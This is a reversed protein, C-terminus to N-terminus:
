RVEEQRDLRANPLAAIQKRYNHRLGRLYAKQPGTLMADLDDGREVRYAMQRVFRKANSGVGFVCRRLHAVMVALPEDQGVLEEVTNRHPAITTADIM